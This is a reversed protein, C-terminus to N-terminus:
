DSLLTRMLGGGWSRTGGCICHLEGRICPGSSSQLIGSAGYVEVLRGELPYQYGGVALAARISSMDRSLRREQDHVVEWKPSFSPRQPRRLQCRAFTNGPPMSDLAEACVCGADEV